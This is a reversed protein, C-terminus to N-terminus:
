PGLAAQKKAAVEDDTLPRYSIPPQAKTQRTLADKEIRTMNSPRDPQPASEALGTAARGGKGADRAESAAASAAAIVLSAPQGAAAQRGDTTTAASPRETKQRKSGARRSKTNVLGVGCSGAENPVEVLDLNHVADAMEEEAGVLEAMRAKTILGCELVQGHEPPFKTKNVGGFAAAAEDPTAFSAYARTKISNLWVDGIAGYQGLHEKMRYVTLPRELNKIFLSDLEAALAEAGSDAESMQLDAAATAAEVAAPGRNRESDDAAMDSGEDVNMVDAPSEARRKGSDKAETAGVSAERAVAGGVTGNHDHPESVTNADADAGADTDVHGSDIDKADIEAQEDAPLLEIGDEDGNKASAAGASPSPSPSGLAEELRKVLDKKLGNTPLGREALEKRLEAVKLDGPILTAM